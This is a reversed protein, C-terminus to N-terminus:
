FEGVNKIIGGEPKGQLLKQKTSEDKLGVVFGFSGL